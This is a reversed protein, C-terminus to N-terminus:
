ACLVTTESPYTPSPAAILMAIKRIMPSNTTM